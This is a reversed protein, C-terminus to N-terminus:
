AVGYTTGREKQPMHRVMCTAVSRVQHVTRNVLTGHPIAQWRVVTQGTFSRTQRVTFDWGHEGYPLKQSSALLITSSSIKPPRPSKLSTGEWNRAIEDLM